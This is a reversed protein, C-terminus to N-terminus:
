ALDRNGRFGPGGAAVYGGSRGNASQSVWFSFLRARSLHFRLRITEGALGEVVTTSGWRVAHRTSDGTIPTAHRHSYPEIVRGAADLVEVRLDGVVSANVFVHKGSFRLLRTTLVGPPQSTIQRPIGAPWEDSLSAFGDRRLTALGTSCTGPLSTGPVGTRGSVYFHLRDGVIVCGGGASQVNAWNWDGEHDSVAIFPERALRSWHFGDRSFGVCIDNPKERHPREGRYMTFLGLLLSEYAVVDLNYLEPRSGIDPRLADLYDAGTWMVADDSRWSAASFDRSEVYRRYRNLGSADEGRLSFVWVQRFPNLFFTSRDGSPGPAHLARWHIGDPSTYLRLARGTLLYVAMKYRASADDTDHDLWVTSSDRRADFVLNTARVVDFRPREWTVGDRSLALGTGEQYGAMYWMKFIQDRPDYVVGDSFPMASPSPATATMQAYPDHIEWPHVPRLIPNGSYYTATHFTRHLSSEQILFDDVFLQRGVDINIAAPPDVLYPPDITALTLDNRVPPWPRPLVIGNYLIERPPSAPQAAFPLVLSAAGAQLLERRTLRSSFGSVAIYVVAIDNGLTANRRSATTLVSVSVSSWEDADECGKVLGAPGCGATASEVPSSRERSRAASM